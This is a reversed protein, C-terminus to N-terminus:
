LKKSLIAIKKVTKVTFVKKKNLGAHFQTPSVGLLLTPTLDQSNTASTSDTAQVKNTQQGASATMTKNSCVMVKEWGHLTILVPNACKVKLIELKLLKMAFASDTAPVKNTLQGANATMMKNSNVMERAWGRLM